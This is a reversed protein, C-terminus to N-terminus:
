GFLTGLVLFSCFIIMTRFFMSFTVKTSMKPGLFMSNRTKKTITDSHYPRMNDTLPEIQNIPGFLLRIADFNGCLSIQLFIICIQEGGVM